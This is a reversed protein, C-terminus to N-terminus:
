QRRLQQLEERTVALPIVVSGELQALPKNPMMLEPQGEANCGTGTFKFNCGVTHHLFARADRLTAQELAVFRECSMFDPHSHKEAVPLHSVRAIDTAWKHGECSGAAIIESQLPRLREACAAPFHTRVLMWLNDWTIQVGQQAPFVVLQHKTGDELRAELWDVTHGIAALAEAATKGLLSGLLEPSCVWSLVRGPEDSLM